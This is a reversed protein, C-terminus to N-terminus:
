EIHIAQLVEKTILNQVFIVAHLKDKNEESILLESIFKYDISDEPFLQLPLDQFPLIDRVWYSLGTEDGEQYIMGCVALDNLLATSINSVKGEIIMDDNSIIKEASIKLHSFKELESDIIKKCCIYNEEIDDCLLGQVRKTLGNIFLDPTGKKGETVYWDYRANTEETDYGDNWLHEELLIIKESGYEWYMDELCFEVHPCTTCDAQVFLELLVVQTVNESPKEKQNNAWSMGIDTILIFIIIILILYYKKNVSNIM